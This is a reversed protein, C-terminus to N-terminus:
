SDPDDDAAPVDDAATEGFEAVGIPALREWLEVVSVPRPEGLAGYLLRDAWDHFAKSPSGMRRVVEDFNDAAFRLEGVVNVVTTRQETKM